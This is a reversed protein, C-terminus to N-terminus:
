SAIATLTSRADGYIRLNEAELAERRQVAAHNRCFHRFLSATPAVEQRECYALFAAYQPHEKDESGIASETVQVIKRSPANKSETKSLTLQPEKQQSSN